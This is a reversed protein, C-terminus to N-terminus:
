LTNSMKFSSDFDYKRYNDYNQLWEAPQKTCRAKHSESIGLTQKSIKNWTVGINRVTLIFLWVTCCKELAINAGFGLLIVRLKILSIYLFCPGKGDLKSVLYKCSLHRDPAQHKQLGPKWPICLSGMLASQWFSFLSFFYRHLNLAIYWRSLSRVNLHGKHTFLLKVQLWSGFKGQGAVPGLAICIHHILKKRRQLLSWLKTYDVQM